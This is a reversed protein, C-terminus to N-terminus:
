LALDYVPPPPDQAAALAQGLTEIKAEAQLRLQSLENVVVFSLEVEADRM